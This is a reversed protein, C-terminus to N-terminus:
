QKRPEKLWHGWSEKSYKPSSFTSALDVISSVLSLAMSSWLEGVEIFERGPSLPVDM